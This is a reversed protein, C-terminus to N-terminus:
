RPEARLIRDPEGLCLGTLMTMGTPFSPGDFAVSIRGWNTSSLGDPGTLTATCPGADPSLWYGAHIYRAENNGGLGEVYFHAEGAGFPMSLVATTGFDQQYTLDGSATTWAEDAAAPTALLLALVLSKV